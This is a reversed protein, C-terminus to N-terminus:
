SQMEEYEEATCVLSEREGLPSSYRTTLVWDIKWVGTVREGKRSLLYGATAQHGAETLRISAAKGADRTILGMDELRDLYGYIRFGSYLGNNSILADLERFTCVGARIALLLTLQRTTM